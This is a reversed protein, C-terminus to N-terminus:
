TRSAPARSSPSWSRAGQSTMPVAVVSVKKEVFENACKTASAPRGAPQLPGPRDQPRQYRRCEWQPVKKVVAEGAKAVQPVSVTGGSAGLLGIKIPEGTAADKSLETTPGDKTADNFVCDTGLVLARRHRRCTGLPRDAPRLQPPKMAPNGEIISRTTIYYLTVSTMDVPRNHCFSQQPGVSLDGLIEDFYRRLGQSCLKPVRAPYGPRNLARPDQTPHLSCSVTFTHCRIPSTAPAAPSTTPICPTTAVVGRRGRRDGGRRHCCRLELRRRDGSRRCRCRLGPSGAVAGLGDVVCGFSKGPRGILFDSAAVARDAPLGLAVQIREPAVADHDHAVGVVRDSVIACNTQSWRPLFPSGVDIFAKTTAATPGPSFVTSDALM